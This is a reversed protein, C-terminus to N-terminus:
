ILEKKTPKKREHPLLAKKRLRISTPTVEVLEDNDIYSITEELTLERHPTLIIAKDSSSARMNTLKKGKVPNVELDNERSHEGIIMGEYVKTRAPIFLIGREELNFMAYATTEGDCNSILMGNRRQEIEGRYPQYSHFVRSLVGTGRTDNRFETQYGILGRSPVHFIIRSKNGGSPRMDKLEGKRKSLKEVVVGSYPEDVDIVVEEIPELLKGAEDRKFLVRPRSVSLEFGERRMTEILVGLQLEGRGGVEFSEGEPDIGLTIAVNTEAEKRLRDLIMRSTVKTGEQGALPSDNVGINVAMTPPDIPTSRIPTTIALDCITDAVSAKEVGAIAIIDGAAIETLLIREIGKFGFLKTLKTTEILEGQLNIAKVNTNIKAIGSYVKGILIKGVYPDSTLISALMSFPAQLDVQPAPVHKIMLNFLPELNKREDKLDTVAWGERGVAYLVPFDLQEETADLVSFLEFVENLVEEVRSDSRDVKNIVVIPRLGLKLAKSLVFKTQPMPGESADVLLVVGEVMSLVREVEGGFDAHGPTDVINFKYDRYHVSTCKALITIGRERELENSDMIRENVQQNDRFTNSQKLINDILTTKGHDVHAIIALNRIHSM